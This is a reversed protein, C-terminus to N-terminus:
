SWTGPPQTSTLISAAILAGLLIALEIRLVLVVRPRKVLSTALAPFGVLKNYGGLAVAAAVLAVKFVLANGYLNGSLHELSGLRHWANYIGSALIVALAVTACDSVRDLYRGLQGTGSWGARAQPLVLCGTLGVLGVWLAILVLHSWEVLAGISLLGAEAAHSVSVRALSFVLLLLALLADALSGRRSSLSVTWLAALAAFGLLGAHGYATGLMPPVMALAEGLPVGGMVAAAAWLSTASGLMGAAAAWRELRALEPLTGGELGPSADRLLFRTCLAGTLGAFALNVVASSGAQLLTVGDM